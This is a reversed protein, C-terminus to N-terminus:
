EYLFKILDLDEEIGTKESTSAEIERLKNEALLVVEHLESETCADVFQRPTVELTFTKNLRPM